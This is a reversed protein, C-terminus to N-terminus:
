CVMLETQNTYDNNPSIGGIFAESRKHRVSHNTDATDLKITKPM